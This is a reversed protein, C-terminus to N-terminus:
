VQVAKVLIKQVRWRKKKSLPRTEVIRVRDGETCENREDHAFYKKTSRVFKGYQKHRMQRTIAVVATKDMKSSVVIGERVKPLGRQRNKQAAQEETAVNM